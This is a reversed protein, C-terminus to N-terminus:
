AGLRLVQGRAPNRLFVLGCELNRLQFAGVHSTLVYGRGKDCLLAGVSVSTPAGPLPLIKDITEPTLNEHFIHDVMMMPAGTCAALCEEERKL